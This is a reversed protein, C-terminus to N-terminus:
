SNNKMVDYCLQRSLINLLFFILFFWRNEPKELKLPVRTLNKIFISSEPMSKWLIEKDPLTSVLQFM